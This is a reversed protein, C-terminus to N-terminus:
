RESKALQQWDVHLRVYALLGLPFKKEEGGCEVTLVDGDLAGLVGVLSKAGDVPKFFKLEVESGTYKEFHEPRKLDREIGPSSVELCYSQEIPDAEDLIPDIARSFSECDEIGVGGEKDIFIRLFWTGGEKKFEVDWIEVGQAGCVPACLARVRDPIGTSAM